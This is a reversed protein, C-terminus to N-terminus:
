RMKVAIGQSLLQQSSAETTTININVLIQHKNTNRTNDTKSRNKDYCACITSQLAPLCLNLEFFDLAAETFLSSRAAAFRGATQEDFGSIESSAGYAYQILSRNGELNTRSCHELRQRDPLTGPSAVTASGRLGDRASFAPRNTRYNGKGAATVLFIM